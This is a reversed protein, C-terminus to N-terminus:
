AAALLPRARIKTLGIQVVDGPSVQHMGQITQGNLTTGNTSGQDEIFIEGSDNLKILLHKRSIEPDKDFKGFSSARGLYIVRQNLTFDESNGDHYVVELFIQTNSVSTSLETEILSDVVSTKHDKVLTGDKRRFITAIHGVCAAEEMAFRFKTSGISIVDGPQLQHKLIKQNNVFTGNTSNMDFVFYEGRIHVVQCHTSSTEADDLVIDGKERGFITADRRLKIM